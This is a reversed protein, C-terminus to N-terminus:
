SNSNLVRVTVLLLSLLFVAFYFLFGPYITCRIVLTVPLYALLGGTGSTIWVTLNLHAVLNFLNPGTYIFKRLIHRAADPFEAPRMRGAPRM